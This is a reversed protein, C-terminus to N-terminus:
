MPLGDCGAPTPLATFASTPLPISANTAPNRCKDRWGAFLKEICSDGIAIAIGLNNSRQVHRNINMTYNAAIAVIVMITALTALVVGLTTGDLSQPKIKKM